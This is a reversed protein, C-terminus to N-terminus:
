PAVGPVVTAPVRLWGARCAPVTPYYGPPNGCYYWFQGAVPAPVLPPQYPNPYPYVPAPYYYWVGGAIWWWGIRGAHKGRHWHGARWRGHDHDNFRHIEVRRSDHRGREASRRHDREDAASPAVMVSMAMLVALTGPIIKKM